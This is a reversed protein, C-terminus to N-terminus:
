NKMKEEKNEDSKMLNVKEDNPIGNKKNYKSNEDYKATEKQVTGSKMNKESREMKKKRIRDFIEDLEGRNVKKEDKIKMKRLNSKVKVPKEHLVSRSEINKVDDKSM